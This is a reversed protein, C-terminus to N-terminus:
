EEQKKQCFFLVKEFPLFDLINMSWISIFLYVKILDIGQLKNAATKTAIIVDNILNIQYAFVDSLHNSM